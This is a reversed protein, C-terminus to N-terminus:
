DSYKSNAARRGPRQKNSEYEWAARLLERYHVFASRGIKKKELYGNKIYRKITEESIEAKVAAESILM